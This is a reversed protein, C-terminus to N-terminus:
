IVGMGSNIFLWNTTSRNMNKVGQNLSCPAKM